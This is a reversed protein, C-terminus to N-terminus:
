AGADNGSAQAGVLPRVLIENVDVNGPQELAFIIADSIASVDIAAEYNKNVGDAIRPTSITNPLETKVPGPSIITTRVGVRNEQRLGESIARVAHKTGCYVAGTPFVEHGAVSALNIIHGSKRQTMAPLVAAIGYLVGKINVDVMRDWEEVKCQSLFSLPMLGANNILVDVPGFEEIAADVLAQVDNRSSVDTVRYAAQGGATTIETVLAQLRDERRAGLMLKAGKQALRKAADEGIGSSAGTIVIVLDSIKSM